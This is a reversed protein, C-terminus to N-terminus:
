RRRLAALADRLQASHARNTGDSFIVLAGASYRIEGARRGEETWEREARELVRLGAIVSGFLNTSRDQCYEPGNEAPCDIRGIADDIRSLDNSEDDTLLEEHSDLALKRLLPHIQNGGSFAYLRISRSGRSEEDPFLAHAFARAGDRLPGLSQRM